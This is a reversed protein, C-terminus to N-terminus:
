SLEIYRQTVIFVIYDYRDTTIQRSRHDTWWITVSWLDSTQDRSEQKADRRPQKKWTTAAPSRTVAQTTVSRGPDLPLIYTPPSSLALTLEQLSTESPAAAYIGRGCYQRRCPLSSPPPPPPPPTWPRIMKAKKVISM